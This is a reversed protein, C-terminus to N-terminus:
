NAFGWSDWGLQKDIAITEQDLTELQWIRGGVEVKVPGEVPWVMRFSKLPTTVTKVPGLIQPQMEQWRERLSEPHLSVFRTQALDVYVNQLGKMSSIVLWALEWEEISPSLPGSWISGGEWRPAWFLYLSRIAHFRQLLLLDPLHVLPGSVDLRFSFLTSSYLLSIAESYIIRCSLLLPLPNLQRKPGRRKLYRCGCVGQEPEPCLTHCFLKYCFLEDRFELHVNSKGIAEEYIMERIELPLAFLPSQAQPKNSQNFSKSPSLPPTLARSRHLGIPPKVRPGVGTRVTCLRKFDFQTRQTARVKQQSKSHLLSDFRSFLSSAWGYPRSRPAARHALLHNLGDLPGYLPDYCVRCTKQPHPSPMGYMPPPKQPIISMKAPFM